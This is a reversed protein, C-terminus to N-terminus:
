NDMYETLKEVNGEATNRKTAYTLASWGYNDVVTPNAGHELLLELIEPNPNATATM